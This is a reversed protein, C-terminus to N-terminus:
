MRMEACDSAGPSRGPAHARQRHRPYHRRLLVVSRMVERPPQAAIGTSDRGDFGGLLASPSPANGTKADWVLTPSPASRLGDKLSVAGTHTVDTFWLSAYDTQM